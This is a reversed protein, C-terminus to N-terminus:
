EYLSCMIMTAPHWKEVAMLKEGAQEETLLESLQKDLTTWRGHKQTTHKEEDWGYPLIVTVRGLKNRDVEYWIEAFLGTATERLTVWKTGQWQIPNWKDESM